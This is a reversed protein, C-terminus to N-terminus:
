ARNWEGSPDCPAAAAVGDREHRSQRPHGPSSNIPHGSPRAIRFTQLGTDPISILHRHESLPKWRHGNRFEVDGVRQAAVDGDDRVDIVALRRQDVRHQVLAARKARVLPDGFAGHVAGIELAFAADRNQGLVGGDM